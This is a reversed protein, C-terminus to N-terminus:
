CGLVPWQTGRFTQQRQYTMAQKMKMGNCPDLMECILVIRLAPVQQASTVHRLLFVGLSILRVLLCHVAVTAVRSEPAGNTHEVVLDVLVAICEVSVGAGDAEVRVNRLNPIVQSRQVFRAVVLCAIRKVCICPSSVQVGGVDVDLCTESQELTLGGITKWVLRTGRQRLIYVRLGVLWAGQATGRARLPTSM